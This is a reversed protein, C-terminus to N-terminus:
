KNLMYTLILTIGIVFSMLYWRLKGNQTISMLRNISLTLKVIGINLWDFFDNRDIVALWVIPKVFLTNYLIDFGWGEEFLKHLWSRNFASTM